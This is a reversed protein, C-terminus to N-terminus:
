DPGNQSGRTAPHHIGGNVRNGGELTALWATASKHEQSEIWPVVDLEKAIERLLQSDQALIGKPQEDDIGHVSQDAIALV